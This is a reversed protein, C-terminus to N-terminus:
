RWISGRRSSTIKFDSAVKEWKYRNSMIFASFDYIDDKANSFDIGLPALQSFLWEVPDHMDEIISHGEWGLEDRAMFTASLLVEDLVGGSCVNRAPIVWLCLLWYSLIHKQKEIKELEKTAKRNSTNRCLLTIVKEMDDKKTENYMNSLYAMAVTAPLRKRM